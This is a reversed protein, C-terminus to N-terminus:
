NLMKDRELKLGMKRYLTAISVGLMSATKERSGENYKLTERIFMREQKKIFDNLKSGIPLSHKMRENEDDSIEVKQTIKPPLDTPRIRRDDAFSCAREVANQLEGVNGPWAYDILLKLAYKDVEKKPSQTLRTYNNLFHDVLLPIDDRRSRLPPMTIPIVSVRYYLDERFKGERVLQDLPQSSTAVFRFNLDRPLNGALRRTNIDELFSDLQSQLRMPLVNIEELVVTGGDARYFITNSGGFLEQDLLEAPLSSCHLVKFSSNKRRSTNHITRAVMQKGSGFEGELLIPSDKDAVKEVLKLIEKIQPSGGILNSSTTIQLPEPKAGSSANSQGGTKQTARNITRQLDDLEFPKTLYDFAGLKMAEVATEVSAYGTVMVVETQPYRARCDQIIQMGNMDPIRLDVILLEPKETEMAAMGSRGTQHLSVQHGMKRCVQGMMELISAEDDIIIIKAM